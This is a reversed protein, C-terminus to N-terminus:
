SKVRVCVHMSKSVAAGACLVLRTQTAALCCCAHQMHEFWRWLGATRWCGPPWLFGSHCSLLVTESPSCVCFYFFRLTKWCLSALVSFGIHTNTAAELSAHRLSTQELLAPLTDTTQFRNLSWGCAPHGAQLIWEMWLPHQRLCGELVGASGQHSLLMNNCDGYAM